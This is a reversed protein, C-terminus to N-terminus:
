SEATRIPITVTEVVAVKLGPCLLCLELSEPLTGHIRFFFSHQNFRILARAPACRPYFSRRYLRLLSIKCSDRSPLSPFNSWSLM